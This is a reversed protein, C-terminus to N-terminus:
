VCAVWDNVQFLHERRTTELGAANTDDPVNNSLCMRRDWGLCVPDSVRPGPVQSRHKLSGGERLHICHLHFKSAVLRSSFNDQRQHQSRKPLILTHPSQSLIPPFPLPSLLRTGGLPGSISACIGSTGSHSWEVQNCCSAESLASNELQWQGNVSLRPGM